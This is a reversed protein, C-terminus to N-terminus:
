KASMDSVHKLCEDLLGSLADLFFDLRILPLLFGGINLLAPM